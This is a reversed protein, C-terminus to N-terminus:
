RRPLREAAGEPVELTKVRGSTGRVIRVAGKACGIVEVLFRVLEENARGDVPPAALKVQLVPRGREDAGWGLCESRRANPTVKCVLTMGRVRRGMRRSALRGGDGKASSM